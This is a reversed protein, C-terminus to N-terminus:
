SVNELEVKLDYIEEKLDSLHEEVFGAINAQVRNYCWGINKDIDPCTHKYMFERM